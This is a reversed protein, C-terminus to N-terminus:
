KEGPQYMDPPEMFHRQDCIDDDALLLPWLQMDALRYRMVSRAPTNFHICTFRPYCGNQYRSWLVRQLPASTSGPPTFTVCEMMGLRPHNFSSDTIVIKEDNGDPLRRLWTGRISEPFTCKQKFNHKQPTFYARDFHNEEHNEEDNEENNEGNMSEGNRERSFEVDKDERQKAYKMPFRDKTFVTAKKSVHGPSAPEAMSESATCQGCTRMCHLHQCFSTHNHCLSLQDSCPETIIQQDQVTLAMHPTSLPSVANGTVSSSSASDAYSSTPCVWGLYLMVEDIKLSDKELRKARGPGPSRDGVEEDGKGEGQGRGPPALSVRLCFFARDNNHARLMAFRERGSRWTAMCLARQQLAMKTNAPLCSQHKFNFVIGEGKVCDSEMRIPATTSEVCDESRPDASVRSYYSPGYYVQSGYYGHRRAPPPSAYKLRLNYGGVFPCRVPASRYHEESIWPWAGVHMYREDCLHVLFQGGQILSMKVQVVSLGRRLFELCMYKDDFDSEIHRVLYKNGARKELCVRTYNLKTCEAGMGSQGRQQGSLDHSRVCAGHRAFIKGGDVEFTAFANSQNMMWHKNRRTQLFRPFKCRPESSLSSAQAHLLTPPLMTLLLLPSSTMLLTLIGAQTMIEYSVM